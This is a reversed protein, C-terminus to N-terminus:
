HPRAAQSPPQVIGSLTSTIEDSALDRDRRAGARGAERAIDALSLLGVLRGNEIVPLRRIQNTRMIAEAEAVSDNPSCSRLTKSMADAVLLNQPSLGRSWCAMCVDRDTVVGVVEDRDDALVPVFGCDCDWMIQCAASSPESTRCSAVDKTMLEAVRM